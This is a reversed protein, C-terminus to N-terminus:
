KGRMREFFSVFNKYAINEIEEKSYGRKELAKKVNGIETVDHVGQLGEDEDEHTSYYEAFDFGFGIKDLGIKEAIYEMHNLLMDLNKEKENKSVFGHYSNMGIMGNREGICLIQEDTLNRMSPCLSRANSHSAFFPKKSYKAIDWFTKDNAHSVDLLIGLNEIIEVAKIGLDTLGRNVDGRQGTAFANEENWTMGIHRVGTRELLYLYDLNSGIGPLGEIGLIVGFKNQKEAKEFDEYNKIVHVLDRSHYLEESMARLSRFFVEEVDPTNFADMYIVFIGGFLGGKIFKDKYKRRIVDNKGKEYEWLNDTWVDAHMDFFM